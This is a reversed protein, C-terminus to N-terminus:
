KHKRGGGGFGFEVGLHVGSSKNHVDGQQDYASTDSAGEVAFFVTICAGQTDYVIHSIKITVFPSPHMDTGDPSFNNEDRLRTQLGGGASAFLRENLRCDIAVQPRVLLFQDERGGGAQDHILRQYAVDVEGTMSRRTRKNRQALPVRGGLGVGGGATRYDDQRLISHLNALGTVGQQAHTEEPKLALLASLLATVIVVKSLMCSPQQSASSPSRRLWSLSKM